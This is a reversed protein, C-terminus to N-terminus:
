CASSSSCPWFRPWGARRTADAAHATLTKARSLTTLITILLIAILDEVILIGFVISRSTARSGNSKSPRSSSRPAPSPSSRAPTSAPWSAVLRLGPRGRLRALDDPQMARDGRLRGDPRRSAAKPLSFEIGLSFMLLIVGLEALNHVIDGQAELPVSVYPGVIM